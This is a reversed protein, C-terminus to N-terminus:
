RQNTYMWDFMYITETISDDQYIHMKKKEEKRWQNIGIEDAYMNKSKSHNGNSWYGHIQKQWPELKILVYRKASQSEM